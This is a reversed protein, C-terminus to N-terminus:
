HHHFSVQIDWLWPYVCLGIVPVVHKKQGGGMMQKNEWNCLPHTQTLLEPTESRCSLPPPPPNSPSPPPPPPLITDERWQYVSRYDAHYISRRIALKSVVWAWSRCRIWRGLNNRWFLTVLTVSSQESINCNNVAAHQQPIKGDLSVSTFGKTQSNVLYNTAKALCCIQFGCLDMKFGCWACFFNGEPDKWTTLPMLSIMCFQFYFQSSFCVTMVCSDLYFSFYWLNINWSKKLKKLPKKQADRRWCLFTYYM